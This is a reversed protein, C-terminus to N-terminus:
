PLPQPSAPPTSDQPLTIPPTIAPTTKTPANLNEGQQNTASTKNSKASQVKDYETQAIQYDKSDKQLLSLTTKLETLAQDNNGKQELALALNYHANPLDNKASVALQYATIADEFKGQSYYFGGLSIRLNPDYPDLAIAQNYTDIAFQDAGQAFPIISQYTQALIQWNGSRLQNLAVTTKAERIAQQILQTITTRDQDTLNKGQSISRALAMNVQTYSAHYRDVFPNLTIASGMLDYTKKGDNKALADLSQKYIYEASVAKVGFFLFVGVLLIVPVGILFAPIKSSKTTQENYMSAALRITNIQGHTNIALVVFFLFLLSLNIPFIIVLISIILLSLVPLDNKELKFQSREKFLVKVTQYIKYGLILFAAFGFLGAETLVTFPWNRASTFRVTWLNTLNYALPRFRNFATLYNGPGVGFIPTEKLADISISWSTEFSPLAPSSPQGPLISFIALVLGVTMVILALSNITKKLASNESLLLKIGLPLVTLLFLAEPLKGELLSFQSNKVVDPLQPIISFVKFFSLISVLGILSGSYFIINTLKSKADSSTVLVYFLVLAIIATATGPFFFAEMKNPTKLIASVIYAVALLILPIDIPSTSIKLEGKQLTILSKIILVLSIALSLLILKPLDFFNPFANTVFLPLLFVIGLLIYKEISELIKDM